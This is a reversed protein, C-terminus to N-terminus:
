DARGPQGGGGTGPLPRWVADDGETYRCEGAAVDLLASRRLEGGLAEACIPWGAQALAARVALVVQWAITDGPRHLVNAGGVLWVRPVAGTFYRQLEEIASEAYRYAREQGPARGPLMVHALAGRGTAADYAAVAVCSGLPGSVLIGRGQTVGIEGTFVEGGAQGYDIVQM